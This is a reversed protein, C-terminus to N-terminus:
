GCDPTTWGLPFPPDVLSLQLLPSLSHSHLCGSSPRLARTSTSQGSLSFALLFRFIGIKTLDSQNSKGQRRETRWRASWSQKSNYARSNSHCTGRQFAQSFVVVDHPTWVELRTALPGRDRATSPACGRSVM